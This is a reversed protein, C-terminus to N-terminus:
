GEKVVGATQIATNKSRVVIEGRQDRYVTEFEVFKMRGGRRGEKEYSRAEGPEGTLRDGGSSRSNSM